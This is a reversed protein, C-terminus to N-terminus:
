KYHITDRGDRNIFRIKVIGIGTLKEITEKTGVIDKGNILVVYIDNDNLQRDLKLGVDPELPKVPTMGKRTTTKM